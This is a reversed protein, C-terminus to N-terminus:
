ETRMRGDQVGARLGRLTLFLRDTKRHQFLDSSCV